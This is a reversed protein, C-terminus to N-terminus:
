PISSLLLFTYVISVCLVQSCRWAQLFEEQIVCSSWAPCPTQHVLSTSKLRMQGKPQTSLPSDCGKGLPCCLKSQINNKQFLLVWKGRSSNSNFIMCAKKFVFFPLSQTKNTVTKNCLMIRQWVYLWHSSYIPFWLTEQFKM